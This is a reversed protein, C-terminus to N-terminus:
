ENMSVKILKKLTEEYTYKAHIEKWITQKMPSVKLMTKLQSIMHELITYKYWQYSNTFLSDFDKNEPALIMSGSALYMINRLSYHTSSVDLGTFNPSAWAPLVLCVKAECCNLTFDKGYVCGSDVNWGKGAVRIKKTVLNYIHWIWNFAVASCSGAYFVDCKKEKVQEMPYFDEPDIPQTLWMCPTKTRSSVWFNNAKSSNFIFDYNDLKEKTLYPCGEPEYNWLVLRKVGGRRLEVPNQTEGRIVVALDIDAKFDEISTTVTHGMKKLAKIIYHSTAYSEKFTDSVLINM